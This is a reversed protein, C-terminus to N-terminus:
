EGGRVNSFVVAHRRHAPQRRQRLTELTTSGRQSTVATDGGAEADDQIVHGIWAPVLAFWIYAFAVAVLLADLILLILALFM